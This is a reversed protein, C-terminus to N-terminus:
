NGGQAEEALNTFKTFRGIWGLKVKDLSGHRNKAVIVEAVSQDTTEDKYYEDRYLFMVIDADQEIAGSDRLDSLMPRKDPRNEPGRSLQACCIVPIALEKALLKLGRSIDGVEQVRNDNHRDGQMLQLYDVVVLGLNKVRRLKSKMATVTVGPTDDILIETESLRSSAYAIANWDEASLTGSRMKYSDIQAESSLMRNALQEASMELSFVCVTKKTRIAAETAINMAFSTKGMGPRAGILVLDAEQMGVIVNDLATYGTPTGRLAEPDQSLKTLRDYVQILADRIHVFNKNERGEAIRFIKSEAFEVLNEASDDGAYAAETIDDGAEILQRLGAKDRVIDAYDKANAATPVAEAVLRLYERGGSEDYTGSKVLEDILTVVDINKSKLYMSQMARFIETHEPVYFDEASILPAIEDMCMPDILISGLLSQEAELSFPLKRDLENNM